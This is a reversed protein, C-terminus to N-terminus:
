SEKNENNKENHESWIEIAIQDFMFLISLEFDNFQICMLQQYAVIEQLSIPNIGAMSPSRTLRCFAHWLPKGWRPWEVDLM